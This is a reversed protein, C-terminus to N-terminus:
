GLCRHRGGGCQFCGRRRWNRRRHSGACWGGGARDGRLAVGGIPWESCGARPIGGQTRPGVVSRNLRWLEADGTAGEDVDRMQMSAVYDKVVIFLEGEPMTAPEPPANHNKPPASHNVSDAPLLIPRNLM